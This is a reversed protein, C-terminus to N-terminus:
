KPHISVVFHSNSANHDHPNISANEVSRFTNFITSFYTLLPQFCISFLRRNIPLTSHFRRYQEFSGAKYIWHFRRRKMSGAVSNMLDFFRKYDKTFIM